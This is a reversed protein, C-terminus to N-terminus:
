RSGTGPAFGHRLAIKTFMQALGTGLTFVSGLDVNRDATEDFFVHLSSDLGDEPLWYCIMVPVKPLPSLVVSIDSEFQKDVKKGGFVHVIDDFLPTYLDAVRKMPEDCRKQFLPYGDRGGRLERYPVWKGTPALGQGYLIYSLFPAAVWPNIHIETTLTGKEHVSFDKGLVKLTLKRGSFVAGVREAAKALDIHTIESKLMELRDEPSPECSGTADPEERFREFIEPSLKPCERIKRQGLFVAGAFALCTKEGCQGCGSKDLFQFIEFANKPKSL